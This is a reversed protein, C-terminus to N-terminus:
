PKVEPVKPAAIVLAGLGAHLEEMRKRIVRLRTEWRDSNEVWFAPSGGGLTICVLAYGSEMVIVLSGDTDEFAGAVREGPLGTLIAVDNSKGSWEKLSM